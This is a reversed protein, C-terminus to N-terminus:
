VIRSKWKGWFFFCLQFIDMPPNKSLMNYRLLDYFKEQKM